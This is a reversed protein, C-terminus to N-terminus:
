ALCSDHGTRSMNAGEDIEQPHPQSLQSAYDRGGCSGVMYQDAVVFTDECFKINAGTGWSNGEDKGKVAEGKAGDDNKKKSAPVFGWGAFGM